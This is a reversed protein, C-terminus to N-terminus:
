ENSIGLDWFYNFNKQVRLLLQERTLDACQSAPIKLTTVDSLFYFGGKKLPKKRTNKFLTIISEGTELHMIKIHNDPINTFVLNHM